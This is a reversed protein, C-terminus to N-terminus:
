EARYPSYPPTMAATAVHITGTHAASGIRFAGATIGTFASNYYVDTVLATNTPSFEITYTTTRPTLAFTGTGANITNTGGLSLGDVTLSINGNV